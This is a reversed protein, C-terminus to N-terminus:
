AAVPKRQVALQQTIKNLRPCRHMLSVFERPNLVFASVPTTAVVSANRPQNLVLSGEGIIAGAGVNAIVEDDRSVAASGSVIVLAERGVQGEVTLMAGADLEVLTGLEGLAKLEHESFDGDLAKAARAPVSSTSKRFGFM